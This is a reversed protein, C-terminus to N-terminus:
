GTASVGLMSTEPAPDPLAISSKVVPQSDIGFGSALTLMTLWLVSSPQVSTVLPSPWAPPVLTNSIQPLLSLWALADPTSLCILRAVPPPFLQSSSVSEAPQSAGASPM